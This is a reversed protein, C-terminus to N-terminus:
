GCIGLWNNFEKVPLPKCLFFGQGYDCSNQNLFHWTNATEIGVAGVLKDFNHAMDIISKVLRRISPDNPIEDIVPKGIKIQDFPLQMLDQLSLSNFDTEDLVLTTNLSKLNTLFTHADLGMNVITQETIELNILHPTFQCQEILHALNKIFQNDHLSSEMININIGLHRKAQLWTQLQTLCTMITWYTLEKNTQSNSKDYLPCEEPPLAGKTPDRWRILAEVSKVQYNTMDVIPQYFLEFQSFNSTLEIANAVKFHPPLTPIDDM